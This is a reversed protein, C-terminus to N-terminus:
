LPADYIQLAPEFVCIETVIKIGTFLSFSFNQYNIIIRIDPFICRLDKFQGSKLCKHCHIPFFPHIGGESLLGIHRYASILSARGRRTHRIVCAESFHLWGAYGM